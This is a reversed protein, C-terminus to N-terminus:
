KKLNYDKEVESAMNEPILYFNASITYRPEDSRNPLVLHELFSPFIIIDGEKQVDPVWIPGPTQKFLNSLGTSDYWDNPGWKFRLLPEASPLKFMYSCSFQIGLSTHNHVEQYDGTEYKNMWCNSQVRINEWPSDNTITKVFEKLHYGQVEELFVDWPHEHNNETHLTSKTPCDWTPNTAFNEKKKIVKSFSKEIREKSQLRGIYIPIQYISLTQSM